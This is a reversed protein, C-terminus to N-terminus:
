VAYGMSGMSAPNRRLIKIEAGGAVDALPPNRDNLTYVKIEM